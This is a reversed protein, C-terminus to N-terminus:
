HVNTRKEEHSEYMNKVSLYVKLTYLSSLISIAIFDVTSHHLSSADKSWCIPSTFIRYLVTIIYLVWTISPAQMKARPLISKNYILLIVDM